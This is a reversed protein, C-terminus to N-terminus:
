RGGSRADVLDVAVDTGAPLEVEHDNVLITERSGEPGSLLFTAATPRVCVSVSTAHWKLRFKVANWGPPLWPKFTMRGHRV